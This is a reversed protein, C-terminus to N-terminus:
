WILPVLAWTTKRYEEYAEGFREALARDEIAIRRVFSICGAALLVVLSLWNGIAIGFGLLAILIATYSPNRLYRYPGNKILVHAEQIEVKSRFFKGLKQVAWFRLLIGAWILTIGLVFLVLANGRIALRSLFNPVAFIGVLIGISWWVIISNRSGKDQSDNSATGRERAVLWVEFAIWCWYSATIVVVFILSSSTDLRVM